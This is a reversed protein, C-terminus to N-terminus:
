GVLDGSGVWERDGVNFGEPYVTALERIWMAERRKREGSSWLLNAELGFIILHVLNVSAFHLVLPTNCNQLNVNRIHQKLRAQLTNGTEGVYRRNCHTCTILYVVNRTLLSVRSLIVHGRPGTWLVKPQRFHTTWIPSAAAPDSSFSSRVLLDKLNKNKRYASVLHFRQLPLHESQTKQFHDKITFNLTRSRINYTTIFPIVDDTDPGVAPGQSRLYHLTHNKVRRLFKKSYGRTRLARFLTRTAGEFDERSAEPLVKTLPVSDKIAGKMMAEKDLGLGAERISDFNVTCPLITQSMPVAVNSTVLDCLRTEGDVRLDVMRDGLVPTDDPVHDLSVSDEVPLHHVDAEVVIVSKTRCPSVGGVTPYVRRISNTSIRSSPEGSHGAPRSPDTNPLAQVPSVVSPCPPVGTGVQNLSCQDLILNKTVTLTDVKLRHKYRNRAWKCAQEWSGDLWDYINSLLSSQTVTYHDLLLRMNGQMWQNTNDAVCKLVKDNPCAPKIFKTLRDVQKFM